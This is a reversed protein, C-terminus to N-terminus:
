QVSLYTGSGVSAWSSFMAPIHNDLCSGHCIVSSAYSELLAKSARESARSLEDSVKRVDLERLQAM